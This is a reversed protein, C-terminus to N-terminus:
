PTMETPTAWMCAPTARMSGVLCSQSATKGFRCLLCMHHQAFGLECTRTSSASPCASHAYGMFSPWRRCALYTWDLGAGSTKIPCTLSGLWSPSAWNAQRISCPWTLMAYCHQSPRVFCAWRAFCSPRSPAVALHMHLMCLRAFGASPHQLHVICHM